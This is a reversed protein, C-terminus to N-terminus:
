VVIGFISITHPRTEDRIYSADMAFSQTLNRVDRVLLMGCGYTQFLWKHADWSLSDARGLGDVLQHYDRSLVVSAGYAGDVHLWIGAEKAIDALEHLPDIGGTNTLGCTAVILFPVLGSSKDTMIATRLSSAKMRLLSDCEVYRIQSEHFGAIKLGKQVSSHTQESLYIVALGRQKFSLKADRATVVATLNAMSGGSLFVGGASTPLRLQRALWEILADEIASPGSTQYWSGAHVNFMTTILQGILSSEHVPSPIFGFFRPHEMAVRHSMVQLMDNITERLPRGQQGPAAQERITTVWSDDALDVIRASLTKSRAYLFSNCVEEVLQSPSPEANLCCVTHEM